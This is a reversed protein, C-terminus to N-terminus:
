TMPQQIGTKIPNQERKKAARHCFAAMFTAAM